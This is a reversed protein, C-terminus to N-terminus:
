RNMRRYQIYVIGIVGLLLFTRVVRFAQYSNGRSLIAFAVTLGAVALAALLLTSPRKGAPEGPPMRM